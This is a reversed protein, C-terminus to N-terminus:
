PPTNLKFWLLGPKVHCKSYLKGKKKKNYHLSIESQCHIPFPQHLSHLWQYTVPYNSLAIVLCPTLHFVLVAPDSDPSRKTRNPRSAPSTVLILRHVATGCHTFVTRQLNPRATLPSSCSPSVFGPAQRRRHMNRLGESSTIQHNRDRTAMSIATLKKYLSM